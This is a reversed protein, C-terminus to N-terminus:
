RSEGGTRGRDTSGSLRGLIRRLLRAERGSTEARTALRRLDRLMSSRLHEQDWGIRELLTDAQAFLASLDGAAALEDKPRPPPQRRLAPARVLEWAVILVAQALNLTPHEPACPITVVRHCRDLEDRGLGTDEPGFVLATATGAPGEALSDALRDVPLQRSGARPRQRASTTGILRRFPAIAEEFSGAREVRDLIDWGGVGFGRAVGGIPPAPEVLLLRSLGMNAMARAVSGVNGEERPRVLIVTPKESGPTPEGM